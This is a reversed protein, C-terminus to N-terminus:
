LSNLMQICCFAYLKLKFLLDSRDLADEYM